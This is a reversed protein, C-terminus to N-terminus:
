GYIRGKYDGWFMRKTEVLEYVSTSLGRTCVHIPVDFRMSILCFRKENVSCGIELKRRNFKAHFLVHQPLEPFQHQDSSSMDDLGFLHSIYFSKGNLGTVLFSLFDNDIYYDTKIPRSRSKTITADILYAKAFALNNQFQRPSYVVIDDEDIKRRTIMGLTTDRFGFDMREGLAVVTRAGPMGMRSGHECYFDQKCITERLWSLLPFPNQMEGTLDVNRAVGDNIAIAREYSGDITAHTMWLLKYLRDFHAYGRVYGRGFKTYERVLSSLSWNYQSYFSGFGLLDTWACCCPIVTPIFIEDVM